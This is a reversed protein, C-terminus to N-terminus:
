LPLLYLNVDAIANFHYGRPDEPEWEWAFNNSMEAALWFRPQLHMQLGQMEGKAQWFARKVSPLKDNPQAYQYYDSKIDLAYTMSLIKQHYFIKKKRMLILNMLRVQM